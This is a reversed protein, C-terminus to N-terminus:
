PKDDKDNELDEINRRQSRTPLKDLRPKLRQEFIMAIPRRLEALERERQALEDRAGSERAAVLEEVARTFAAQKANIIGAAEKQCERLIVHAKQSQEDDLSFRRIFAEVYRVWHGVHKNAISRNLASKYQLVRKRRQEETLLPSGGHRKLIPGWDRRGAKLDALFADHSVISEGNWVINEGPRWNQAAVQMGPQMGIDKPSFSKRGKPQNVKAGRIEVVETLEGEKWYETRAPLWSEGYKRITAVAEWNVLGDAEEIFVRTANWGKAPDIHWVMRRGRDFQAIVEYIGSRRRQTWARVPRGSPNWVMGFGKDRVISASTPYIGALLVDRVDEALSSTKGASRWLMANSNTEQYHWFGDTNSLYIQPLKSTGRREARSFVTWGNRDGRVEFIYDGNAAYRNVFRLEAESEGRPFVSWEIRGNVITKRSEELAQLASPKKLSDDGALLGLVLMQAFFRMM